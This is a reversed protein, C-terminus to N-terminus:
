SVWLQAVHKLAGSGPSALKGRLRAELAQLAQQYTSGPSGGGDTQM